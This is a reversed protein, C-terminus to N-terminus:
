NTKRRRLRIGNAKATKKDWFRPMRMKNGAIPIGHNDLLTHLKNYAFTIEQSRANYYEFESQPHIDPHYKKIQTKYQRDIDVDMLRDRISIFKRHKCTNNKAYAKDYGLIELCKNVTWRKQNQIRHKQLKM